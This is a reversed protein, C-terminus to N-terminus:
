EWTSQVNQEFKVWKKKKKVIKEKMRVCAIISKNIPPSVRDLMSKSIYVAATAAVIYATAHTKIDKYNDRDVVVVFFV